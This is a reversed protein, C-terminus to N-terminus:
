VEADVTACYEGNGVSGRLSSTREVRTTGLEIFTSAWSTTQHPHRSTARGYCRVGFSNVQQPNVRTDPSTQHRYTENEPTHQISQL